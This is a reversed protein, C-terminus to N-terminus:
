AREWGATKGCSEHVSAALAGDVPERMLVGVSPTAGIPEERQAVPLDCLSCRVLGDVPAFEGLLLEREGDDVTLVYTGTGTPYVLVAGTAPGPTPAQSM